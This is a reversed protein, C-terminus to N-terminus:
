KPPNLTWAAVGGRKPCREPAYLSQGRRCVLGRDRARGDRDLDFFRLGYGRCDGRPQETEPSLERAFGGKGDGLLIEMGGDHDTAVLDLYSTATSTAPTSRESGTAGRAGDGGPAGM